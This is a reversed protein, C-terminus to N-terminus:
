EGAAKAERWMWWILPLQFPLRIWNAPGSAEGVKRTMQGDVPEVAVRNVAMDVNAPFVVITLAALGLASVRRTSKPLMGLGFVIEAGGSNYNAAKKNPFWDPVISEFLDARAFHSVGASVFLLSAAASSLPVMQRNLVMAWSNSHTITFEDFVRGEHDIARGEIRNRYIALDVLHFTSWAVETFDARHAPRKKASAGSVV